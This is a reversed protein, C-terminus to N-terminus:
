NLKKKGSDARVWQASAALNNSGWGCHDCPIEVPQSAAQVGAVTTVPFKKKLFSRISADLCKQCKKNGIGQILCLVELPM